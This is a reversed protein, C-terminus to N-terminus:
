IGSPMRQELRDMSTRQYKEGRQKCTGCKASVRQYTDNVMAVLVTEAAGPPQMFWLLGEIWEGYTNKPKSTQVAVMGDGLWAAKKPMIKSTANSKEILFNRFSAKESQRLVGDPSAVSM